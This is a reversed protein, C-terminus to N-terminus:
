IKEEKCEYPIDTTLRTKKIVKYKKGVMKYQDAGGVFRFKAKIYFVIPIGGLEKAWLWAYEYATNKKDTFCSDKNLLLELKNTGHMLVMEKM